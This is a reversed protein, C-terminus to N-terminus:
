QQWTPETNGDGAHYIFNNHQTVNDVNWGNLNHNAFSSANEFMSEMNTINSTDWDEITSNSDFNTTNAFMYSLDTVNTLIPLDNAEIQLNNCGEFSHSMSVWKIDGWSKIAKIKDKNSDGDDINKFYMQPFEGTINIDYVGAKSYTHTANTDYNEEPSGDGWNINYNYTLSTDDKNVPITISENDSTTEFSIIFPEVVNKVTVNVDKTVTNGANDDVALTIQYINDKNEDDPLEYDPAKIFTVKGDSSVNVKSNDDINDSTAYSNAKIGSLSDTASITLITQNNEYVVVNTNSITPPTKDFTLSSGDTTTTVEAISNGAKDYLGKISFTVTGEDFTDSMTLTARWTSSNNDGLDNITASQGDITVTPLTGNTEESVNFDLQVIEGPKVYTNPNIATSSGNKITVSTLTPANEDVDTINITVNEEASNGYRDTAKALFTYSNKTEFDPATKFTVVGSSSNIDFSSSDGSSIAYILADTASLTIANTQNEPVSVSSPSTFVPAVTNVSQHYVTSAENPNGNLDTLVGEPIYIVIDETSNLDPTVALTYVSSNVESFTGAKGGTLNIDEVSFNTVGESFTFTFKVDGTSTSATGDINDTITVTPKTVDANKVLDQLQSVSAIDNSTVKSVQYNIASLTDELVGTIGADKYDQLTPAESTNDDAYKKIKELAQTTKIDTIVTTDVSKTIIPDTLAKNIEDAVKNALGDDKYDDYFETIKTKINSPNDGILKSFVALMTGYKGENSNTITDKNLIQPTVKTLDFEDGMFTKAVKKNEAIIEDKSSTLTLNKAAITTYPTINASYTLNDDVVSYAEFVVGTADTLNGDIEDVYTGGTSSLKIAGSYDGIKISFKGNEDTTGSGIVEGTDVRLIEVTAGNIPGKDVVGTVRNYETSINENSSDFEGDNQASGCGIFSFVLLPLLLFKLYKM